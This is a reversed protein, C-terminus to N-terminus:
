DEIKKYIDFDCASGDTVLAYGYKAHNDVFKKCEGGKSDKPVIVIDTEPKKDKLLYLEKIHELHPVYFTYSTVSTDEDIEALKASMLEFKASNNKYYKEYYFWKDRIQSQMFLMSAWMAGITLMNQWKVDLESINLVFMYLLITSSGYAYQYGLNHQFGYNSMLNIVVYPVLLWLTNFKKTAVPVFLLAGMTCIIFSVCDEAFVNKLLFYPNKLVNAAMYALSKQDGTLYIGYRMDMFDTSGFKSEFIMVAAFWV